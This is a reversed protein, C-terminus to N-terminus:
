TRLAESYPFDELSAARRGVSGCLTPGSASSKEAAHCAACHNSLVKRGAVLEAFEIRFAPPVPVYQAFSATATAVGIAAAASRVLPDHTM